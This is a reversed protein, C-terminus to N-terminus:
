SRDPSKVRLIIVWVMIVVVLLNWVIYSIIGFPTFVWGPDVFNWVASFLSSIGNLILLARLGRYNGSGPFLSASAWTALGLFGYGVMEIYWFMSHANDAALAAILAGNALFNPVVAIQLFYNTFITIAYLGTFYACLRKMVRASENQAKPLASFFLLFGLMLLMGFLYPVSQVPHFHETYQEPGQWVPQPHTVKVM